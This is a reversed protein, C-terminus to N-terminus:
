LFTVLFHCYHGTFTVLHCFLFHNNIKFFTHFFWFWGYWISLSASYSFRALRFLRPSTSCITASSFRRAYSEFDFFSIRSFIKNICSWFIRTRRNIKGRIYLPYCVRWYLKSLGESRESFTGLSGVWREWIPFEYDYRHAHVHSLVLADSRRRLILFSVESDIIFIPPRVFRFDPSELPDKLM